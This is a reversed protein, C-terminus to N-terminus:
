TITMSSLLFCQIFQFEIYLSISLYDWNGETPFKLRLVPLRDSDLDNRQNEMGSKVAENLNELIVANIRIGEFLSIHFFYNSISFTIVYAKSKSDLSIKLKLPEPEEKYLRTGYFYWYTSGKDDGGM